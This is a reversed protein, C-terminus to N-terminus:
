QGLAAMIEDVNDIFGDGPEGAGAAVINISTSGFLIQEVDLPLPDRLLRTQHAPLNDAAESTFSATGAADARFVMTALLLEAQGTPTDDARIGGLENLLGPTSIDVNSQSAFLPDFAVNSDLSVFSPDFLLDLFAAAPGLANSRQDESFIRVLFTDGLPVESIPTGDLATTEVRVAALQSSGVTLNVTGQTATTGDSAEYVFSDSGAFGSVPVYTFSGDSNLILSGHTAGSVAHATLTDGDPDSDNRLLGNAASVVLSQDTETHYEDGVVMPPDDAPIGTLTVTTEASALVGDSATYTFTDTGSFNPDPTYTFAGTLDLTLSGNTPQTVLTAVLADGDADSDNALVGQSALVNFISDEAFSYSDEVAVPTQNAIVSITVAATRTFTGDSVTYTFQDVGAFGSDPTYLFQGSALLVLSGHAVDQDVVASLTDADPDTDNVLVGSSAPVELTTDQEVTYTDDVPQPAGGLADTVEITVEVDNTAGSTGTVVLPLTFNNQVSFDLLTNDRVTLQGNTRHLQFPSALADVAPQILNRVDSQSAPSAVAAGDVFLSPTANLGLTGADNLDRNVRATLDADALDARFQDIDLHLEVALTEFFSTPDALGSWQSQRNFLLDHMADFEGQRAAAESVLAAEFANAHISTLPFHRTVVLLDDAFDQKAQAILPAVAACAPCQFDLYEILVVSGALNGSFHDDPRLQLEPTVGDDLQFLAAGNQVVTGVFAGNAAAESITFAFPDTAPQVFITATAVNSVARGDSVQYTFSDEGTFGANPTYTFSGNPQLTLTGQAPQTVVSATLTDQDPDSDNAILGSTASIVLAEGATMQYSDDAASPPANTPPAVSGGARIQDALETNGVQEEADAVAALISQQLPLRSAFLWHISVLGPSIARESFEFGSLEESEGLTINSILNDQMVVGGATAMQGGHIAGAPQHQELQYVGAPLMEFLFTGDAGTLMSRSVSEGFQPTGSLNIQAGQFPLEGVDWIGNGNPDLYVHGRITSNAQEVVTVVVEANSTSGGDSITYTFRDEGLFGVPATYTITAGDTQVVGGSSTASVNTITLPDGDVEADNALVDFTFPRGGNTATEADANAVPADPTGTVVITVTAQASDTGDSAAYTFTDSGFFDADPTYTFTGDSNFAVTGNAPNSVLSAVLSSEVDSDNALVSDNISVTLSTDEAVTYSDNVVVPVDNVASVTVDVTVPSSNVTGDNAVYTFADGGFFNAGPTYTFSGDAALAITGNTPQDVIVATLTDGDVDTDNSLVGTGAGVVLPTDEDTTFAESNPQPGDNVASVNISVLAVNSESVGDSARYTFTDTGHFNANPIYTFAGNSNFIIVGNSPQDVLTASLAGSDQDGDNSLVGQDTAIELTIDETADYTDARAPLARLVTITKTLLGENGAVDTATLRVVQPVAQDATPTWSVIGTVPDITMGSPPDVLGFVADPDTSSADFTYLQGEQATTPINDVLGPAITEITVNLPISPASQGAQTAQVATFQRVGDGLTTAETTTITVTDSSATASGVNVGGAFLFVEAGAIVGSVEFQLPNGASNNLNTLNDDAAAGRDSSALLDVGTPRAIPTEGFALGITDRGIAVTASYGTAPQTQDGVGTESLVSYTGPAVALRFNGNSDTRVFLEDADRVNNNNADIYVIADAIGTEGDDRTGNANVDLYKEGVLEGHGTNSQIVVLENNPGIPTDSSFPTATTNLSSIADVVTMDLARGFVTFGGSNAPNDLAQSNDVVNFYFQSTASNPDSTKAMAITTRVNPVGPENQIPADTPVNGFQPTDDLVVEGTTFGGGQLVGVGSTQLFARRHFFSNIYDSDNVYNLFNDVTGPAEDEFLELLISGFNTNLSVIPNDTYVISVEDGDQLVHNEYDLSVEGNVFLKIVHTATTAEGFLETSSFSSFTNNGALGANTRWTEFFTGLTVGADPTFFIEGTDATTFTAARSGDSQVGVNEPIQLQQGNLFVSLDIAGEGEGQAAPIGTLVVRSELCEIQLPRRQSARQRSARQRRSRNRAVPHRRRSRKRPM